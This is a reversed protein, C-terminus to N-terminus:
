EIEVMRRIGKEVSVPPSWNLMEKTYSSDIRLSGVLRNIEKQKRFILGLFKLLFLPIPFLNTKRGMSLAIFKILEPTSLDQGDSVLFTKGAAKPHDACCILLDVLNDIGIMSRQNNVMGLPLPIGLKVLKILQALNGKVGYGYVLPIRVITVELGTKLSVENLVKEAEFKSIAYAGKPDPLDNHRFIDKFKNKQSKSNNIQTTNEGNVKITSLFVLRKVGARAAHEALNKTGELNISHYDHQGKENIMHVKAACHIVCNIGKLAYFWDTSSNIEGVKITDHFSQLNKSRNDNRLALVIKRSKKYCYQQFNSGIFGNAGTLLIM